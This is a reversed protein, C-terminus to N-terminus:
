EENVWMYTWHFMFHLLTNKPEYHFSMLSRFRGERVAIEFLSIHIYNKRISIMIPNFYFIRDASLREPVDSKKM